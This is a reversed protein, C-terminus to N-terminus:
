LIQIFLKFLFLSEKSQYCYSHQRVVIHIPHGGQILNIEWGNTINCSVNQIWPAFRCTYRSLVKLLEPHDIRDSVNKADYFVDAVIIDSETKISESLQYPVSILPKQLLFLLCLLLLLVCILLWVLKKKM